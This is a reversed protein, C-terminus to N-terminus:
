LQHNEVLTYLEDKVGSFLFGYKNDIQVSAAAVMKSLMKDTPKKTSWLTIFVGDGLVSNNTRIRVETRDLYTNYSEYKRGKVHRSFTHFWDDGACIRYPSVGIIKTESIFVGTKDSALIPNHYKKIEICWM